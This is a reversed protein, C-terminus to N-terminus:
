VAWKLIIVVLVDKKLMECSAKLPQTNNQTPATICKDICWSPYTIIKIIIKLM